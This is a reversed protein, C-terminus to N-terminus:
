CLLMVAKQLKKSSEGFNRFVDPFESLHCKRHNLNLICRHHLHMGSQPVPSPGTVQPPAPSVTPSTSRLLNGNTPKSAIGGTTQVKGSSQHKQIAVPTKLQADGANCTVKVQDTEKLPTFDRPSSVSSKRVEEDSNSERRGGAKSRKKGRDRKQDEDDGDEEEELDQEMFDDDDAEVQAEPQQGWDEDESDGEEEQAEAEEESEDEVYVVRRKTKTVVAEAPAPEKKTSMPLWGVKEKKLDLLEEEGDEDYAILHKGEFRDYSKVVGKYWTRDLPWYVRLPRGVLDGEETLPNDTAPSHQESVRKRKEGNESVHGEDETRRLGSNVPADRSTVGPPTAQSIKKGAANDTRVKKAHPPSPTTELGPPLEPKSRHKQM